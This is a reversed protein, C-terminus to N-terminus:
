ARTMHLDGGGVEWGGMVLGLLGGEWVDLCAVDSDVVPVGWVEVEVVLRGGLEVFPEDDEEVVGDEAEDLGRDEAEM